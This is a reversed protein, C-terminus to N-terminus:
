MNAISTQPTPSRIPRNGPGAGNAIVTTGAIM